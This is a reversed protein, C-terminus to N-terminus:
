EPLLTHLPNNEELGDVVQTSRLVAHLGRLADDIDILLNDALCVLLANVNKAGGDSREFAVVVVRYVVLITAICQVLPYACRLHQVANNVEILGNAIRLVRNGHLLLEEELVVPKM